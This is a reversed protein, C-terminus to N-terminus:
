LERDSGDTGEISLKRLQDVLVDFERWLERPAELFRDTIGRVSDYREVVKWQWHTRSSLCIVGGAPTASVCVFAHPRSPPACHEWSSLTTVLVTDYPFDEVGKFPINRSKVEIRFRGVRIDVQDKFRDADEISARWEFPEIAAPLGELRLRMAVAEEHLRGAEMQERALKDNEAWNM